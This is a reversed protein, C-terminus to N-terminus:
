FLRSVLLFSQIFFWLLDLLFLTMLVHKRCSFKGWLDFTERVNVDTIEGYSVNQDAIQKRAVHFSVWTILAETVTGGQQEM